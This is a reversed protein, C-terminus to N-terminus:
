NNPALFEQIIPARTNGTGYSRSRPDQRIGKKKGFRVGELASLVLRVSWDVTQRTSQSVRWESVRVLKTFVGYRCIEVFRGFSGLRKPQKDRRLGFSLRDALVVYPEIIRM